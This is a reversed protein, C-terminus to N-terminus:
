SQKQHTKLARFNLESYLRFKEVRRTSILMGCPLPIPINSRWATRRNRTFHATKLVYESIFNLASFAWGISNTQESLKWTKCPWAIVEKKRNGGYIDICGERSNQQQQIQRYLNAGLRAVNGMFWVVLIKTSQPRTECHFTNSNNSQPATRRNHSFRTLFAPHMQPHNLGIKSPPTRVRPTKVAPWKVRLRVVAHCDFM